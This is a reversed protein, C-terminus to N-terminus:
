SSELSGLPVHVQLVAGSGSPANVLTAHGGLEAVIQQVVQLGLGHGEPKGTRGVRFDDPVGGGTDAIVLALDNGSEASVTLEVRRQSEGDSICSEVANRLGNLIVAELPGAPLDAAEPAIRVVLQVDHGSAWDETRDVARQVVESVSRVQGLLDGPSTGGTMAQNLVDAMSKLADQAARLRALAPELAEPDGSEGPRSLARRALALSRLSGDLLSNLEHALQAVSLEPNGPPKASDSGRATIEPTEGM